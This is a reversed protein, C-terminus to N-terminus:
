WKARTLRFQGSSLRNAGKAARYMGLLTNENDLAWDMYLEMEHALQSSIVEIMEDVTPDAAPVDGHAEDGHMWDHAKERTVHGISHDLEGEDNLLWLTVVGQDKQAYDAARGLKKNYILDM